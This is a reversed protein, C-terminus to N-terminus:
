ESNKKGNKGNEVLYFANEEVQSLTLNSNKEESNPNRSGPIFLGLKLQLYLKEIPFNSNYDM